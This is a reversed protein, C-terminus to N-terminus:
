PSLSRVKRVVRRTQTTLRRWPPAPVTRRVGHDVVFGERLVYTAHVLSRSGAFASVCVRLAIVVVAM